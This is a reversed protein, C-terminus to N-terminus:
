VPYRVDTERGVVTETWQKIQIKLNKTNRIKRIKWKSLWSWVALTCMLPASSSLGQLLNTIDTCPNHLMSNRRERVVAVRMADRIEQTRRGMEARAM